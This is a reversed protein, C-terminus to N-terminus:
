AAKRRRYQRLLDLVIHAVLACIVSITLWKFFGSVYYVIGSKPDKPRVHIQGQAYNANAGPHCKGCMRPINAPNVASAPDEAPRIDHVGHCSACNAVTRMGYKTAVGHFSEQYADVQETSIGYKGVISEAAHCASCTRAVNASSTSSEADLHSRIGHENHCDACTPVDPKGAELGVGHISTRFEAYIGLHCRGCVKPLAARALQNAPDQRSRIGHAGHCDQCTPAEPNGRAVARGHVSERYQQYVDSPPAGVTNDRYHCNACNVPQPPTAHPIELVDVHCDICTKGGHVSARLEARDVYLSQTRGNPLQRKLDPKGHCVDCGSVQASLGRSLALVALAVAVAALRASV